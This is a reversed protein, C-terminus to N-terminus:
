ATAGSALVSNFTARYSIYSVLAMVPVVFGGLGPVWQFAILVFFFIRILWKNVKSVSIYCIM